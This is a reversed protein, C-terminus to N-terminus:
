RRLASGHSRFQRKYSEQLSADAAFTAYTWGGNSDFPVVSSYPMPGGRRYDGVGATITSRGFVPIAHTDAIERIYSYHATEDFGEFPPLVLIQSVGFLVIATTLLFITRNRM